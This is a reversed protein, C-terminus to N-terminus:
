ASSSASDQLCKRVKAPRFRPFMENLSAPQAVSLPAALMGHCVIACLCACNAKYFLVSPRMVYAQPPLELEHGDLNLKLNPLEHLNSCDEVTMSWWCAVVNRIAALPVVEFM